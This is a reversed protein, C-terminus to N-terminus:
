DLEFILDMPMWKVGEPAWPLGAQYKWMLDEWEQVKENVLDMAQKRELSFSADVDLIMFLRNAIRHIQMEVVGADKLSQKVEPWVNESRHYSVYEEILTPDNQLDCALCIRRLPQKM